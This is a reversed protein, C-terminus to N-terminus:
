GLRSIRESLKRMRRKEYRTWEDEPKGDLDLAFNIADLLPDSDKEEKRSRLLTDVFNPIATTVICFLALWMQRQDIDPIPNGATL